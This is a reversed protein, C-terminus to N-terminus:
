ITWNIKKVKSMKIMYMNHTIHFVYKKLESEVETDM